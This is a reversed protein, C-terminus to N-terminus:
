DRWAEGAESKGRNRGMEGDGQHAAVERVEGVGTLVVVVPVKGVETAVGEEGEEGEQEKRWGREWLLGM